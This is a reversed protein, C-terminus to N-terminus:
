NKVFSNVNEKTVKTFYNEKIDSSLINLKKLDKISYSLFLNISKIFDNKDYCAKWIIPNINDPIPNRNLESKIEVVITPIGCAISEFCITSAASILVKSKKLYVDLNDNVITVSSFFDPYLKIISKLDTNPHSRLFLDYGSLSTLFDRSINIINIAAKLDMPLCIFISNSIENERNINHLHSFRLGPALSVNLDKNFEKVFPIIKKGIVLIENPIIKLESEYVTPVLHHNYHYSVVFNQFGKYIVNPFFDKVGASFGKDSPQNEFWLIIKKLKINNSKLNKLFRYNLIGYFSNTNCLSRNFDYRLLSYINFDRFVFTSFDFKYIKFPAFLAYFFDKTKLFDHKFLFNEESNNLAKISNTLSLSLIQKVSFALEPVFFLDNKINENINNWFNEKFYFRSKYNGKKFESNTVYTDVLSLQHNHNLINNRNKRNSSLLLVLSTLTNKLFSKCVLLAANFFESFRNEIVIFSFKNNDKFFTKLTVKVRNSPLIFKTSNENAIINKVLEIYCLDMFLTGFWNNRSILPCVIWYISKDTKELINRILQNYDKKIDLSISNLLNTHTSSLNLLDITSNDDFEKHYKKFINNSKEL